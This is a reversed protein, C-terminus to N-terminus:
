PAVATGLDARTLRAAPDRQDADPFTAGEHRPEVASTTGLQTM